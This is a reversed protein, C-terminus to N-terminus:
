RRCRHAAGALEHQLGHRRRAMKAVLLTYVGGGSGAEDKKMQTESLEDGGFGGSGHWDPEAPSDGHRRRRLRAM